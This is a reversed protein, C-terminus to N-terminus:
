PSAGHYVGIRASRPSIEALDAPSFLRKPSSILKKSLIEAVHTKLSPRAMLLPTNM